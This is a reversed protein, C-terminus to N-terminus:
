LARLGNIVERLIGEDFLNAAPAARRVRIHGVELLDGLLVRVVGLPLGSAATLEAVSRPVPRCLDLVAAQEPNLTLNDQSSSEASILAVLDFVHHHDRAARGGTLAYLRVLPGAEDDYWRDPQDASEAPSVHGPHSAHGTRGAHGTHGAREAHEADHARPDRGPRPAPHRPDADKGGYTGSSWGSWTDGTGSWPDGGARGGSPGGTSTTM